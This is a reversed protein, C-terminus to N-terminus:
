EEGGRAAKGRGKAAAERKRDTDPSAGWLGVLLGLMTYEDASRRLVVRALDALAWTRLETPWVRWVGEVQRASLDGRRVAALLSVVDRGALAAAQALSLDVRRDSICLGLVSARVRIADPSRGLERALRVFSSPGLNLRLHDDHTYAGSWKDPRLRAPAEQDWSRTRVHPRSLREESLVRRVFREPYGTARVIAPAGRGRDRAQRIVEARASAPLETRPRGAM